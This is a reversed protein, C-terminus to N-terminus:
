IVRGGRSRFAAIIESLRAGGPLNELWEPELLRLVQVDKLDSEISALIEDPTRRNWVAPPEGAETWPEHGEAHDPEIAADSCRM